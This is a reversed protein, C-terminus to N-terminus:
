APLSPQRRGTEVAGKRRGKDGKQEFSKGHDFGDWGVMAEEPDCDFFVTPISSQCLHPHKDPTHMFFCIPATKLLSPTTEARGGELNELAQKRITIDQLFGVGFSCARWTVGSQTEFQGSAM